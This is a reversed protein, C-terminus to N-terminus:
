DNKASEPAEDRAEGKRRVVFSGIALADVCGWALHELADRPTSVIPLGHRNFSTNLVAPVGTRDRFMSIM